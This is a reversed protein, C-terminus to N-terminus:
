RPRRQGADGKLTRDQGRWEDHSSGELDRVVEREVAQESPPRGFM